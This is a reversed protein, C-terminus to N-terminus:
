NSLKNIIDSLKKLSEDGNNNTLKFHCVDNRFLRSENILNLIYKRDLNKFISTEFYRGIIEHYDAFSLDNLIRDKLEIPHISQLQIIISRLQTELNEIILFKVSYDQLSDAVVRPTILKTYTNKENILIASHNSLLNMAYLLSDSENVEPLSTEKLSKLDIEDDSIFKEWMTKRRYLGVNKKGNNDIIPLLSIGELFKTKLLSLNASSDVSILKKAFPILFGISQNM